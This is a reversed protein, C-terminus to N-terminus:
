VAEEKPMLAELQIALENLRANCKAIMAPDTQQSKFAEGKEIRDLTDYYDKHQLFHILENYSEDLEDLTYPDRSALMDKIGQPLTSEDIIAKYHQVLFEETETM